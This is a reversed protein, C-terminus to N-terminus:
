QIWGSLDRQLLSSLRQVDERYYDRLFARAQPEMAVSHRPRFVWRRAVNRVAAPSWVRARSWIGYRRLLYNASAFRPARPELARRSTDPQFGDEVGLFRFIEALVRDPQKRYEEYLHIRVNHKPFREWYRRVQEYYLGFELLPHLASFKGSPRRASAQLLPWFPGRVVGNTLAHLYQSFAREVPNRLIMLIKAGPVKSQINGPATPSWLYCVSAEGIAREGAANRFLRLYDAWDSIIGGFRKADLPGDLYERLTRQDRKVQPQLDEAFNEIRVESAFYNPEKVPSMYVEPHQDLYHYLSTTGAKPAGVVFFNPLIEASV